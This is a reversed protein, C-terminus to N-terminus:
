ELGLEKKLADIRKSAEAKAQRRLRAAAWPATCSKLILGVVHSVDLTVLSRSIPM